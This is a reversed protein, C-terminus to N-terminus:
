GAATPGSRRRLLRRRGAYGIGAALAIIIAFPLVTGIAGLLWTTARRLGRWGAALGSVFGHRQKHAAAPSGRGALTLTLTAYSTQRALARQQAQLAELDSEQANIQDQVSLLDGVSGARRLLTRLQAIAAQASTVRSTVDAVQQTVDQAQEHLAVPRGLATRLRALTAPYAAVPIKLVLSAAQAQGHGPRSAQTQSAIYGGAAAVIGTARAVAAPVSAAQVALTATYIIRQAPLLRAAQSAPQGGRGAAARQPVASPAGASTGAFGAGTRGAGDNGASASGVSASSGAPSGQACGALLVVAACLAAAGTAAARRPLRRDGHVWATPTM